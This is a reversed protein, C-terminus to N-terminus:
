SEYFGIRDKLTRYLIVAEDASTPPVIHPMLLNVLELFKGSCGNGNPKTTYHLKCYEIDEKTVFCGFSRTRHVEPMHFMVDPKGKECESHKKVSITHSNWESKFTDLERRILSTFCFQLLESHFINSDCYLDSDRMDKFFNIWWDMLSRRLMSWLAEIRQNSTSKGYVFSKVGAFEDSGSSRFFPQIFSLNTNETGLDSRLIRPTHGCTEVCTIFYHAIIKPNNNSPGVELWLIKRSYGDIAGHLCFGFPKLKDYGDVHWTYSPGPSIYKRRKISKSKRRNVGEPDLEWLLQLVTDRKVQLGHQQKLRQWMARYGLSQGSGKLEQRIAEVIEQRPAEGLRGPFRRLGMKQLLRKLHRLSLKIEHKFSLAQLIDKNSLGAQFYHAILNERTEEEPLTADM